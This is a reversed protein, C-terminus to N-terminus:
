LEIAPRLGDIPQFNKTMQNALYMYLKADEKILLSNNESEYWRDHAVLKHWGTDGRKSLWFVPECDHLTDGLLVSESDHRHSSHTKNQTFPYRDLDKGPKHYPYSM